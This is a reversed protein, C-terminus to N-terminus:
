IAIMFQTQETALSLLDRIQYESYKADDRLKWFFTLFSMVAHLSFRLSPSYIKEIRSLTDYREMESDATIGLIWLIFSPTIDPKSTAPSKVMWTVLNSRLTRVRPSLQFLFEDTDMRLAFSIQLASIIAEALQFEGPSSRQIPQLLLFDHVLKNYSNHQEHTYHKKDVAYFQPYKYGVRYTISPYLDQLDNVFCSVESGLAMIKRLRAYIGDKPGHTSSKWQGSYISHMRPRSYSSVASFIDQYAVADVLSLLREYKQPEEFIKNNALLEIVGKSAGDLHRSWAEMNQEYIEVYSLTLMCVISHESIGKYVLDQRLLNLAKIKFDVASKIHSSEMLSMKRASLSAVANALPEFRPLYELIISFLSPDPFFACVFDDHFSEFHQIYPQMAQSDDLAAAPQQATPSQSHLSLDNARM